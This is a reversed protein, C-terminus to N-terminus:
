AAEKKGPEKPRGSLRPRCDSCRLMLLAVLNDANRFGYGMRVTVKIKNNIAEVRGNGIGLETAAVIDARRRRIKKEVAAVPKIKCYAADHLWADLLREAGAATGVGVAARVRQVETLDELNKVLTFRSADTEGNM